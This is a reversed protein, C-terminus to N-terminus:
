RKVGRRRHVYVEETNDAKVRKSLQRAASLLGLRDVCVSYYRSGIFQVVEADKYGLKKLRNVELQANGESTYTGAIVLYPATNSGASADTLRRDSANDMDSLSGDEEEEEAANTDTETTEKSSKVADEYDIDGPDETDTDTYAPDAVETPSQNLTKDTIKSEQWSRLVMFVWIAIIIIAVGTLLYRLFKSM